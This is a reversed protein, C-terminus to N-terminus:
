FNALARLRKGCSPGPPFDPKQGEPGEMTSNWQILSDSIKALLAAAICFLLQPVTHTERHIGSIYTDFTQMKLVKFNSIIAQLGPNLCLLPFSSSWVVAVISEHQFCKSWFHTINKRCQVVELPDGVGPYYLERTRSPCILGDIRLSLVIATM